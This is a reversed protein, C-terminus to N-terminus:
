ADPRPRRRLVLGLAGGAALLALVTLPLSGGLAAPPATDPVASRREPATAPATAPATDHDASAGDRVGDGGARVGARRKAARRASSPGSTGTPQAGDRRPRIGAGFLPAEPSPLGSAKHDPAVRGARGDAGEDRVQEHPLVYEAVGPTSADLTEHGAAGASPAPLVALFALVTIAPRLSQM